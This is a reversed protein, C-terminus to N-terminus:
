RHTVSPKTKHALAAPPAKKAPGLYKTVVVGKLLGSSVQPQEVLHWQGDEGCYYNDYHAGSIVSIREGVQYTGEGYSCTTAGGSGEIPEAQSVSPLVTATAFGCAAILGVISTTLKTSFM